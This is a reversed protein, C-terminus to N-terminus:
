REDPLPPEALFDGAVFAGARWWGQQCAKWIVYDVTAVRDGSASSLRECMTQVDEGSDAAVRELWVDPKAVDLGLNKALHFKTIGGIHPLTECYAVVSDRGEGWAHGFGEFYAERDRMVQDISKKKGPHGFTDAVEGTQLLSPRMREWIDKAVRWRMGSNLIVYAVRLAFDTADLPPTKSGSKGFAEPDLDRVRERYHVYEEFTM